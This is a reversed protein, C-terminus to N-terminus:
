VGHGASFFVEVRDFVLLGGVQESREGVGCTLLVEAVQDLIARTADGINGFIMREAFFGHGLMEVM